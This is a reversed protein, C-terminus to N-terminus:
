GDPLARADGHAVDADRLRRLGAHQEDVILRCQALRARQHESLLSVVDRDALAPVRRELQHSAAREVDREHVQEHRANAPEVQHARDEFRIGAGGHDDHRAVRADLRAGFRQLLSRPVEKRLWEGRNLELEEGV